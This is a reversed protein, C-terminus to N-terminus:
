IEAVVCLFVRFSPWFRKSNSFPSVKGEKKETKAHPLLRGHRTGMKLKCYRCYVKKDHRLVAMIWDM